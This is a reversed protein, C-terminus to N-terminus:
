KKKHCCIQEHEQIDKVFGIIECGKLRNICSLIANEAFHELSDNRLKINQCRSSLCRKNNSRCDSCVSHGSSCLFIPPSMINGCIQCELVRHEYNTDQEGKKENKVNVSIIIRDLSQGLFIRLDNKKVVTDIQRFIKSTISAFYDAHHTNQCTAIWCKKCESHVFFPVVSKNYLTVCSSTSKLSVEFVFDSNKGLSYVGIALCETNQFIALVFSNHGVTIFHTSTRKEIEDLNWLQPSFRLSDHSSTLHAQVSDAKLRNKPCFPCEVLLKPCVEEHESVKGWEMREQCDKYMCPFIAGTVFREYLEARRGLDSKLFICRGCRYADHEKTYYIPPVSLYNKCNECKFDEIKERTITVAKM